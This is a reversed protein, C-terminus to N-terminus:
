PRLQLQRELFLPRKAKRGEGEVSELCTSPLWQFSVSSRRERQSGKRPLLIHLALFLPAWAGSNIRVEAL